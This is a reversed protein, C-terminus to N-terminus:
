NELLLFIAVRRSSTMAASVRAVVASASTLRRWSSCVWFSWSIVEKFFLSEKTSVSRSFASVLIASALSLKSSPSVELVTPSPRARLTERRSASSSEASRLRRSVVSFYTKEDENDGVASKIQMRAHGKIKEKMERKKEERKLQKKIGM